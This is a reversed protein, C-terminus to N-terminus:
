ASVGLDVFVGGYRGAYNFAQARSSWRVLGLADESGLFCVGYSRVLFRPHALARLVRRYRLASARPICEGGSGVGLGHAVVPSADPIAAPPTCTAAQQALAFSLFSVQTSTM